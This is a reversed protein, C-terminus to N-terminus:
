FVSQALTTAHNCYESFAMAATTAEHGASQYRLEPYVLM